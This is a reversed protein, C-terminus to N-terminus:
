PTTGAATAVPLRYRMVIADERGSAAAPYYGRRIGIREFGFREYLHLARLNSPRVELLVSEFGASFAQEIMRRLLYLGWGGGQWRRGISINLLHAEDVAQMWVMYGVVEDQNRLMWGLYGADLSDIFNGATWPFPYVDNEIDMVADIDARTMRTLSPRQDSPLGSVMPLASM